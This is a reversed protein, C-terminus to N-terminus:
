TTQFLDRRSFHFAIERIASQDSDSGHVANRELSEAYLKRITGQAAKEPDTSGVLTRFNEVANEKELVAVVIPGSSMFDVLREFFAQERHMNYFIQAEKKHLKTMKLAIINFGALHIKNLIPGTYAKMVADPKIISFTQKGPM